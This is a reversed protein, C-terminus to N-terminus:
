NKIYQYVVGGLGYRSFIFVNKDIKFHQKFEKRISNGESDIHYYDDLVIFSGNVMRDKIFEFVPKCSIALDCDIFALSINKIEKKLSENIM